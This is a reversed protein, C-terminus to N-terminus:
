NREQERERELFKELETRTRTRPVSEVSNLHLPKRCLVSLAWCNQTKNKRFDITSNLQTEVSM